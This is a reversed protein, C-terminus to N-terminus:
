LRPDTRVNGRELLHEAEREEFAPHPRGRQGLGPADEGVMRPFGEVRQLVADFGRARREPWAVPVQDDPAVGADARGEQGRHERAEVRAVRRHGDLNVFAVGRRELCRQAGARDVDREPRQLGRDAVVAQRRPREPAFRDDGHHAVVIWKSGLHAYANVVELSPGQDAVRAAAAFVTASEVQPM